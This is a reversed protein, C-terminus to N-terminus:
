WHLLTLWLSSVIISTHRVRMSSIYNYNEYTRGVLVPSVCGSLITGAEPHYLRKNILVGMVSGRDVRGATTGPTRM